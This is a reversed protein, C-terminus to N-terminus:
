RRFAGAGIPLLSLFTFDGFGGSPVMDLRGPGPLPTSWKNSIQDLGLGLKELSMGSGLPCSDQKCPLMAKPSLSTMVNHTSIMAPLSKCPLQMREMVSFM